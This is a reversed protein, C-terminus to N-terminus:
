VTLWERVLPTEGVVKDKALVRLLYLSSETVFHEFDGSAAKSSNETHSV